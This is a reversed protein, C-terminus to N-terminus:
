LALSLSLGCYPDFYKQGKFEKTRIVAYFTIAARQSAYTLGSTLQGYFPRLSQSHSSVFTNGEILINRALARGTLRCFGYISITKVGTLPVQNFLPSSFLADKEPQLNLGFRLDVTAELGTMLNGLQGGLGAKIAPGWDKEKEGAGVLTWFRNLWIDLVPENKLQNSWGQPETWGYTRHLWKQATEALSLCGVVGLGAGWSTQTRGSNRVLTLSTYLLGAYPRDDSIVEEKTLDAPTFIGQAISMAAWRQSSAELGPHNPSETTKDNGLLRTNLRYLFKLWSSKPKEELQPSVWSFSLGNTYGDDRDLWVDNELNFVFNGKGAPGAPFEPPQGALLPWSLNLGLILVPLVSKFSSGGSIM